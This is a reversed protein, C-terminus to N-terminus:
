KKDNFLIKQCKAPGYSHSETEKSNGGIYSFLEEMESRQMNDARSKQHVSNTSFDQSVSEVHTPKLSKTMQPNSQIQNHMKELQERLYHPVEEKQGLEPTQKMAFDEEHPTIVFLSEGDKGEDQRDKTKVLNSYYHNKENQSESIKDLISIYKHTSSKQGSKSAQDLGVDSAGSQAQVNMRPQTQSSDPGLASEFIEKNDFSVYMHTMNTKAEEQSAHNHNASKKAIEELALQAEHEEEDESHQNLQEQEDTIGSDEEDVLEVQDLRFWSNMEKGLNFITDMDVRNAKLVVIRKKKQFEEIYAKRNDDIKKSYTRLIEQVDKLKLDILTKDFGRTIDHYISEIDMLNMEVAKKIRETALIEKKYDQDLLNKMEVVNKELMDIVQQVNNEFEALVRKEQDYFNEIAERKREIATYNKSHFQREQEIKSLYTRVFRKIEEEEEDALEETKFGLSALRVACSSCLGRKFPLAESVKRVKYDEVVFFKSRKDQHNICRVTIRMGDHEYLMLPFKAANLLYEATQTSPSGPYVLNSGASSYANTQAHSNLKPSGRQAQITIGVKPPSGPKPSGQENQSRNLSSDRDLHSTGSPSPSFSLKKGPARRQSALKQILTSPTLNKDQNHPDSNALSGPLYRNQIMKLAQDPRSLDPSGRFRQQHQDSSPSGMKLNKSKLSNLYTHAPSVGNEKLSPSGKSTVMGAGAYVPKSGTSQKSPGKM